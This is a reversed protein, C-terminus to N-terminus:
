LIANAFEMPSPLCSIAFDVRLTRRLKSVTQVKSRHPMLMPLLLIDGARAICVETGLREALAAADESTKRNLEDLGQVIELPGADPGCDDFFCIAFMMNRLVAEPAESHWGDSRQAPKGFGTSVSENALVVNRDQHWSVSWNSKPTKSFYTFKIPFASPAKARVHETTRAVLSALAPEALIDERALRSNTAPLFPIVPSPEFGSRFWVPRM